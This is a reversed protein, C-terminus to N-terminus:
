NSLRGAANFVKHGRHALLRYAEAKRVMLKQGENILHALKSQEDDTLRHHKKLDALNELRTQQEEDMTAKAIEWLEVDGLLSMAVLESRLDPPLDDELPPLSLAIFQTLIEEISRSATKATEWVREYLADPLAVTIVRSPM